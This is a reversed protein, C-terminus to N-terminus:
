DIDQTKNKTKPWIKSLEDFVECIRKNLARSSQWGRGFKAALDSPHCDDILLMQLAKYRIPTMLRWVMVMRQQADLSASNDGMSGGETRPKYEHSQPRSAKSLERLFNIAAGYQSQTIRESMYLRTLTSENFNRNVREKSNPTFQQPEPKREERIIGPEFPIAGGAPIPDTEFTQFDQKGSM